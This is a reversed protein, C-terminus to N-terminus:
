DSRAGTIEAGGCEAGGVTTVSGGAGTGAGIGGLAAAVGGGTSSVDRSCDCGTLGAFGLGEVAALLGVRCFAAGAGLVGFGCSSKLAISCRRRSVEAM